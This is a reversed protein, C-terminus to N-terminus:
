LRPTSRGEGRMAPLLHGFAPHPALRRRQRSPLAQHGTEGVFDCRDPAICIASLDSAWPEFLTFCSVLRMAGRM